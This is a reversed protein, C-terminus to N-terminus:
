IRSAAAIKGTIAASRKPEASACCAGWANMSTRGATSAAGACRSRIRRIWASGTDAATCMARTDVPTSRAARTSLVTRKCTLGAATTSARVSRALVSSPRKM